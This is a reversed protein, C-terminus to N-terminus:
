LAKCDKVDRSGEIGTHSVLVETGTVILVNRVRVSIKPKIM